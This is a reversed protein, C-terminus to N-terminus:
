NKNGKKNPNLESCHFGRDEVKKAVSSVQQEIHANINKRVEKKFKQLTQEKKSKAKKVGGGHPGKTVSGKNGGKHNKNNKQNPVKSKVKFKGQAM